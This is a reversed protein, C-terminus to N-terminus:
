EIITIHDIPSFTPEWACQLLKAGLSEDRGKIGIHATVIEWSHYEEWEKMSHHRCKCPGSAPLGLMKCKCALHSVDALLQVM